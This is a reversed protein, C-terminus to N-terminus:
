PSGSVSETQGPSACCQRCCLGPPPPTCCVCEPCIATNREVSLAHRGTGAHAPVFVMASIILTVLMMSMSLSSSYKAAAM